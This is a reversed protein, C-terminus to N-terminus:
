TSRIGHAGRRTIAEAAARAAFEAAERPPRGEGFAVTLGAAFSDGAGYSDAYPGPLPPAEWRAGGPEFRGGERGETWFVLKPAPDLDGGDYREDPDVASGVLAELQVSAERLTPLERPTAVLVRAARAARLAGADGGTFYVADLGRLREWALPASGRPRLKRALLTITREGEGDLYCFGRRQPADQWDVVVDVGLAALQEAARRGYEDDGLATFFTSEGALRALQVAAVAGGGAAEAWTARAQVIEGPEPVREVLAFDVWEVHGVVGVRM